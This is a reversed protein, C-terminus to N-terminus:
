DSVEAVEWQRILDDIFWSIRRDELLFQNVQELNQYACSLLSM